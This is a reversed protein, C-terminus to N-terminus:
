PQETGSETAKGAPTLPVHIRFHGGGSGEVAPISAEFLVGYRGRLSFVAVCGRGARGM